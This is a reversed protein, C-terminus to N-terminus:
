DPPATLRMGRSCAAVVAAWLDVRLNTVDSGPTGPPLPPAGVIRDVRALM